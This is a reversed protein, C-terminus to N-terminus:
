RKSTVLFYALVALWLVLAAAACIGIVVGLMQLGLWFSDREAAREAPSM